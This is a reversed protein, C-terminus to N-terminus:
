GGSSRLGIQMSSCCLLAPLGPGSARKSEKESTRPQPMPDQQPPSSSRSSASVRVELLQASLLVDREKEVPVLTARLRYSAPPLSPAVLFPYVVQHQSGTEWATVSIGPTVKYRQRQAVKGRGDTLALELLYEEQPSSGARWELSVDLTEGQLASLPGALTSRVSICAELLQVQGAVYPAKSQTRYAAIQEDEYEPALTTVSLWTDVSSPAVWDKHLIVYEIDHQALTSLLSSLDAPPLSWRGCAQMSRLAPTGEIFDYADPPTRSITGEVLPRGHTIQYYMYVKSPQRGMPVEVVAGEGPQAALDFYFSPVAAATTPFPLHLYELLLLAMMAGAFPWRWGARRDALRHLVASLGLGSTVALGFGVLTSFRFPHRFLWVVPVSWPVLVGLDRGYIQLCPGLSLMASCLALLIWFRARRWAALGGALSLGVATVGLYVPRHTSRIHRYLREVLRGWIPNEKAPLLFAILDNGRGGTLDAGVYSRSVTLQERVLPYIFPALGVGVLVALLALNRVVVRSWRGREFVLTYGLYAVSLFLTFLMLHWSSLATLLFFLAAPVAYRKRGEGLLRLLFLFYLPMWQTSVIVPHVSENMRYPFFAFTLGAFFAGRSDATIYRVLCFM